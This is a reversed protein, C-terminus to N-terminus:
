GRLEALCDSCFLQGSDIRVLSNGGINEKGCCDCTGTAATIDTVDSDRAAQLRAREETEAQLKDGLRERAGAEEAARKQARFRAQV